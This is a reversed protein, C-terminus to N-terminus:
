CMLDEDEWRRRRMSSAKRERWWVREEGGSMGGVSVDKGRVEWIDGGRVPCGDKVWTRGVM